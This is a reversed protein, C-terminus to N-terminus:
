RDRPVGAYLRRGHRDVEVVGGRGREPALDEIRHQRVEGLLEAVRAGPVAEPAPRAGGEVLGVLPDGPPDTRVSPLDDERRAPRLGEVEPDFAGRPGALGAAM